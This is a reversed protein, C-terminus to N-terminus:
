SIEETEVEDETERIVEEILSVTDADSTSALIKEVFLDRELASLLFIDATEADIFVIKIKELIMGKFQKKLFLTSRLDPGSLMGYNQVGITSALKEGIKDEAEKKLNRFKSEHKVIFYFICEMKNTANNATNM